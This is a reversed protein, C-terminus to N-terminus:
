PSSAAFRLVQIAYLNDATITDFALVVDGSGPLARLQPPSLAQPLLRQSLPASGLGFATVALTDELPPALRDVLVRNDYADATWRAQATLQTALGPHFRMDTLQPAPMWADRGIRAVVLDSSGPWAPASVLVGRGIPDVQLPAASIWPLPPQAGNSDAVRLLREEANMGLAEEILWAGGGLPHWAVLDTKAVGPDFEGNDSRNGALDFREIFHLNPHGWDRECHGLVYVASAGPDQADLAFDIQNRDLQLEGPACYHGVVEEWDPAVSGAAHRALTYYPLPGLPAYEGRRRLVLAGGNGDAAVAVVADGNQRPLRLESGYWSGQPFTWIVDYLATDPGTEYWAAREGRFAHFGHAVFRSDLWGWRGVLGWMYAHNGQDNLAYLHSFETGGYDTANMSQVYVTGDEDATLGQPAALASRMVPSASLIREWSQAQVTAAAGAALVAFLCKSIM